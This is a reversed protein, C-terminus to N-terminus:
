MPATTQRPLAIVFGAGDCVPMRVAVRASSLLLLLPPMGDWSGKWTSM